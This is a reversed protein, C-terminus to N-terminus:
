WRKRRNNRYRCEGGRPKSFVAVLRYCYKAGYSLGKEEGNDTFVTDDISTVGILEYGAYDPIGTECHGYDFNYSDVRRWVQIEESSRCPYFDWNLGIQNNALLTTTLGTLAPAVITVNWNGYDVLPPQENIETPNNKAKFIIQYPKERVHNCHTEWRFHLSAPSPQFVPTNPTLSISSGFDSYIGSISEISVEHGDPDKAQITVELITGAEVCTDRPIILEPPNNESEEIMIQMDRTVFGLKYWQDNIKRWEEVIFAINYQGEIGPADWVLDGTLSDMTMTAPSTGAANTANVERRDHIHPMEFGPVEKDRNQKCPVLKYVLSDGDPDWAAPNHKFIAGVIGKDIPPNLLVPTNNCYLFPDIIVQTEVYFAVYGSNFMNLVYDNRNPEQYRVTYNGPGPFTHVIKYIKVTINDGLDKKTVEKCTDLDIFTGDGFDVIDYGFELPIRPDTYGTITFIYAYSQCSILEATIDGARLHHAYINVPNIILFIIVLGKLRLFLKNVTYYLRTKYIKTM